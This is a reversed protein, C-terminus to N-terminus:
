EAAAPLDDPCLRLVFPEACAAPADTCSAGDAPLTRPRQGRGISKARALLKGLKAKATAADPQSELWDALFEHALRHSAPRTVGLLDCVRRVREQEEKTPYWAYYPRRKAEAEPKATKTM